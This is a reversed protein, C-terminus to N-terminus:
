VDKFMPRPPLSLKQIRPNKRSTEFGRSEIKPTDKKIGLGARKQRKAKAIQSLDNPTKIEACAVHVPRRNELDNTGGLALPRIHEDIWKEGARIEKSCLVCIGKHAEFLKLRQTPTL